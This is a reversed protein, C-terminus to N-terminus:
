IKELLKLFKELGNELFHNSNEIFNVARIPKKPFLLYDRRDGTHIWEEGQGRQRPKGWEGSLGLGSAFFGRNPPPISRGSLAIGFNLWHWYPARQNLVEIDGIAFGCTFGSSYWNFSINNILNGTSGLRKTNNRITDCMFNLTDQGLQYLEAQAELWFDRTLKTKFEKVDTGYKHISFRIM